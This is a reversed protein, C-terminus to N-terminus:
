VKTLKDRVEEAKVKFREEYEKSKEHLFEKPTKRKLKAKRYLFFGLGAVLIVVIILAIWKGSGSSAQKECSGICCLKGQSSITINGKCIENELCTKGGLQICTQEEESQSTNQTANIFAEQNKVTNVFIEAEASLDQYVAQIKGLSIGEDASKIQLKIVASDESELSIEKPSLTLSALNSSLTINELATQGNNKLLIEFEFNLNKIVTLNIKQKSFNFALLPLSYNVPKTKKIIYVPINYSLDESSITINSITSNKIGSTSFQINKTQAERIDISQTSNLFIALVNINKIKSTVKIEFDKDTVIFGPNVSFLSLNGAASFNFNLDQSKEQGLETYHANKITLTYNKESDQLIAYLYFKDNIKTVDYILPIFNRGSYFFIDTSKINDLFNGSIEAILTQGPQYEQKITTQLALVIPIFLFIALFALFLISKKM